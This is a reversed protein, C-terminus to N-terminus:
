GQCTPTRSARRAAGAVLGRRTRAAPPGRGFPRRARRALTARDDPGGRTPPYGAATGAIGRDGTRWGAARDSVARECDGQVARPRHARDPPLEAGVQKIAAFGREDVKGEPLRIYILARVVAEPLGGQDIREELHTAAQAAAAERAVDRAIRRSVSTEDARLGMMAQLIPSGYTNFFFVETAADRADGWMKLSADIMDAM